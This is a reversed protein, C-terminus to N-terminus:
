VNTIETRLVSLNDTVNSAAEYLEHRLGSNKDWHMNEIEGMSKLLESEYGGIFARKETLFKSLFILESSVKSKFRNYIDEAEEPIDGTANIVARQLWNISFFIQQTSTLIKAINPTVSAHAYQWGPELAVRGHLERNQALLSLCEASEMDYKAPDALIADSIKRLLGSLSSSLEAGEREPWLLASIVIYLLVGFIIGIMRDRIETLDTVPGFQGMIALSYSFLIQIGIYNTKNSGSAVWAGAIIVPMTVALLGAISDLHPTIFVTVFLAYLSGIACGLIRNIGRHTTAGLSPLAVIFSTLLLTHVGIWRTATYFLYGILAVLVTKIGFQLYVIDNHNFNKTHIDIDNNICTDASDFAMVAQAMEFLVYDLATGDSEMHASFKDNMAFLSRNRIASTIVRCANELKNIMDAQKVTVFSKPLEALKAAAAHLRDVAAVRMLYRDKNQEISKDSRVALKLRSHLVNVGTEVAISDPLDADVGDRRNQLARVVNGMQAEAEEVFLKSPDSPLFFYNVVITTLIPYAVAVWVWLLSRLIMEGSPYIDVFSQAYFVSIGLEFGIAGLKSKRMFYMSLVALVSATVIRLMPNNITFMMMIICVPITITAGILLIIGALRTMVTNEHATFFVMILSLSLFPVEFTMSCIIVIVFCLLYRLTSRYRDPFPAMESMIFHYFGKNAVANTIM